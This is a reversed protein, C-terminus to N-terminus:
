FACNLLTLTKMTNHLRWRHRTASREWRGNATVGWARRKLGRCGGTQKRDRHIWRNQVKWTNTSPIVRCTAKSQCMAEKREADHNSAEDTIRWCKMVETTSYYNRRTAPDCSNMQRGSTSVQTTAVKPWQSYHQQSCVHILNQKFVRTWIQKWSIYFTIGIFYHFFFSFGIFFSWFVEVSIECILINLYFYTSSFTSLRM